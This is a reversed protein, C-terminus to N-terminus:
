LSGPASGVSRPTGRSLAAGSRPRQRLRRTGLYNALLREPALEAPSKPASCESRWTCATVRAPGAKSFESPRCGPPQAGVPPQLVFAAGSTPLVGFPPGVALPVSTARWVPPIRSHDEESEDEREHEEAVELFLQAPRPALCQSLRSVVACVVPGGAPSLLARVPVVLPG